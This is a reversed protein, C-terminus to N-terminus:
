NKKKKKSLFIMMRVKKSFKSPISSTISYTYEPSLHFHFCVFDTQIKNDCTESRISFFSSSLLKDSQISVLYIENINEPCGTNRLNELIFNDKSTLLIYFKCIFRFLLHLLKCLLLCFSVLQFTSIFICVFM